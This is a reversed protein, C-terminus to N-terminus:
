EENWRFHGRDGVPEAGRASTREEERAQPNGVVHQLIQHRRALRSRRRLRALRRLVLPCDPLVLVALSIRNPTGPKFPTRHVSYLTVTSSDSERCATQTDGCALQLSCEADAGGLFGMRCKLPLPYNGQRGPCARVCTCVGGEARRRKRQYIRVGGEGWGRQKSVNACEVSHPETCSGIRLTHTLYPCRAGPAARKEGCRHSGFRPVSSSSPSPAQRPQPAACNRRRTETPLKIHDAEWSDCGLRPVKAQNPDNGDGVDRDSRRALDGRSM